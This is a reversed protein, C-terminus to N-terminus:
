RLVHVSGGNIQDPARVMGKNLSNEKVLQFFPMQVLYFCSPTGYHFLHLACLRARTPRFIPMPIPAMFKRVRM